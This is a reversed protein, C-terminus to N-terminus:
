NQNSPGILHGKIKMLRKEIAGFYSDREQHEQRTPNDTQSTVSEELIFSGVSQEDNCESETNRCWYLVMQLPTQESPETHLKVM